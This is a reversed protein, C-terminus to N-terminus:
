ERWEADFCGMGCEMAESSGFFRPVDADRDQTGHDMIVGQMM